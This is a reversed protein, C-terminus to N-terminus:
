NICLKGEMHDLEHQIVQAYLDYFTKEYEKEHECKYSVKIRLHRKVTGVKGPTSLCGEEMELTEASKDKLIPNIMVIPNNKSPSIDLVCMRRNYGVQIAALGIGEADYMTELMDAILKKENDGVEKVTHSEQRLFTDPHKIIKLIMRRWTKEKGM